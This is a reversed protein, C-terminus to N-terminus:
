LLKDPTIPLERIRRGTAHYVANAIAAHSGTNGIEGMGKAGVDNVHADAEDIMIVDIPPVDMQVPVHYDALDRTVVRGSGVDRETRELLAMGIGWVIGGLLQSRGTKANLVKGTAFAGVFRRVRVQGLDPDVTVEAFQAGFSHIAYNKRDPSEKSEFTAALEPQGSRTLLAAYTEGRPPGATPRLEGGAATVQEPRLGHLPSRPDGIALAIAAARARDAAGKVAPSVSSATRSGASLPAEPLRTDGIEVRVREAPLGLADAAVQGLITYTGTGIDQSGTQVVATGDAKLRVTAQATSQGAPYTATAMGWGVLLRGDRMAGVKPHRRAWGFREAGARYCQRLSKSSFPHGSDPDHEAYNRLRLELPDVGVAYALEDMASELAFTGTSEGPARMFTPTPIDLRRLRHSTRISPCAYLMRTQSASAEVFEDFRSTASEVDHRVALLQGRADAGLLVHQRTVPRHGVLSFMQHRTLTLRVPRRVVRAAMVALAVHSWPSGKCGFGGGIYLSIVRVNEKPLDFLKAIRNRANFVGQTSDYVTVRDDSQWVAVTGHPEMPNHNETPTAYTADVKVAARAWAADFDGHDTDTPGRATKEPKVPASREQDMVVNHPRPEYRPRVLELAHQAHELTDAVVVAVPQDNYLIKDDQLVQLVRDGQSHSDAGSLRPANKHTLVALVGPAREAAATDIDALRGSTIASSVILAVAANAVPTEPAYPARGTVKLPGDVRDRARGVEATRDSM